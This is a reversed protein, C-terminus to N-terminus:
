IQLEYLPIQDTGEAHVPIQKWVQHCCSSCSLAEHNITILVQRHLYAKVSRILAFGTQM